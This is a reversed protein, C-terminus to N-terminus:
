PLEVVHLLKKCRGCFWKKCSSCCDWVRCRDSFKAACKACMEPKTVDFKQTAVCANPKKALTKEDFVETDMEIGDVDEVDDLYDDMIFDNDNMAAINQLVSTM